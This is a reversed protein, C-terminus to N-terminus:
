VLFMLNRSVHSSEATTETHQVADAREGIKTGDNSKAEM